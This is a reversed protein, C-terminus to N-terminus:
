GALSTADRSPEPERSSTPSVPVRLTFTSGHGLASEVTITGGMMECLKRSIALGLGSGGFKRNAASDVQSFPQFLKEQQAPDIGIGTDRVSWDLWERDQEQVRRVELTVKGAITFKCANGLLNLLCQRFRTEDVDVTGGGSELKLELANRNSRALPSTMEIVDHAMSQISVPESHMSMRGSEIRSMDLIDNILGLLHKGAMQVKGLGAALVPANLAKADAELMESYGLIANLPTRLEHGMTALFNRKCRNSEEAADLAELLGVEAQKRQRVEAELAKLREEAAEEALRKSTLAHALQLVEINDFPKKLIVLNHSGGLRHVIDRWSYDTYATCIVVQLMPDCKWLHEITEIGDWGPPMRVDVFAASYPRGERQAEELLYLGDQGQYASDLEFASKPASGQQSGFLSAELDSLDEELDQRPQLIKRLDGHIAENDDILLLRHHQGESQKITM